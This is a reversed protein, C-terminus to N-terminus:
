KPRNKTPNTTTNSQFNSQSNGHSKLKAVEKNEADVADKIRTLYFRRLYIPM